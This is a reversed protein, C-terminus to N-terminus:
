DRPLNDPNAGRQGDLARQLEIEVQPRLMMEAAFKWSRRPAAGDQGMATAPTEGYIAKVAKRGSGTRIMLARGGNAELIFAKGIALSASGGGTLRYTSGAFSGRNWSPGPSFTGINLAGIKAKNVTWSASINGQTSPKVLPTADRFKSPAVGIDIAMKAIAQKRAQRATKDVARRLGNVTERAALEMREIFEKADLTVSIEVAM